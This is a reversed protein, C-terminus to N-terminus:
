HCRPTKVSATINKEWWDDTDREIQIEGDLQPIEKDKRGIHIKLGGNTQSKHDCLDCSLEDNMEIDAESFELTARPDNNVTEGSELTEKSVTDM